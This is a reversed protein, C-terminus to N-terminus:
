AYRYVDAPRADCRHLWLWVALRRPPVPHRIRVSVTWARVARACPARPDNETAYLLQGSAFKILHLRDGRKYYWDVLLTRRSLDQADDQAYHELTLGGDGTFGVGPYQARLAETDVHRVCFLNPSDQLDDVNPDWFLNLLDIRRISIEGTGNEAANDWFVGYCSTGNKLKYWTCRDYTEDFGTRELVVPVIEGLLKAAEEDSRERPLIAPAPLNDMLDAHKNMLSNLLWASHPDIAGAADPARDHRLRYWEENRLIRQELAAKGRKYELLLRIGEAVTQEDVPPQFALEPLQGAPDGPLGAGHLGAALSVAAFAADAPIGDPVHPISVNGETASPVFRRGSEGPAPPVFPEGGPAPATAPSEALVPPAFPEGGSGPAAPVVVGAADTRIPSFPTHRRAREPRPRNKNTRKKNDM